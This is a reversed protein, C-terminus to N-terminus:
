KKKLGDSKKVLVSLEKQIDNLQNIVAPLHEAVYANIARTAIEKENVGQVEAVLGLLRKTPPDLRVSLNPSDTGPKKSAM